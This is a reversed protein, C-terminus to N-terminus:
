ASVPGPPPPNGVNVGGHIVGGAVGGSDARVSVDGGAALGGDGASVAGGARLLRLLQEAAAVVAPDGAAGTDSLAKELPVAWTDPDTEHEALVVEASRHGAFRAAVAAKLAKYGDKVAATAADRVAASAGVALARVIMSVPEMLDGGGGM